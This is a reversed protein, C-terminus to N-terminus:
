KEVGFIGPIQKKLITVFLELTRTLIFRGSIFLLAAFPNGTATAPTATMLACFVDAVQM